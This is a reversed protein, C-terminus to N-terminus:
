KLNNIFIVLEKRTTTIMISQTADPFFGIAISHREGEDDLLYGSLTNCKKGESDYTVTEKWKETLYYTLNYELEKKENFLKVEIKDSFTEVFAYEAIVEKSKQKGNEYEVLEIPTRSYWLIRKKEQSIGVLSSTLILILLFLKKM